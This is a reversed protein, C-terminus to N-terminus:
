FEGQGDGNNFEEFSQNFSPNDEVNAYHNERTIMQRSPNFWCQFAPRIIARNRNKAVYFHYEKPDVKADLRHPWCQFVIVDADQELQGSDKLDKMGPSFGGKRNEVGRSLQCLAVMLVKRTTAIQRLITSTRSVQEREDKGKGKLIQAYDVVVIKVGKTQIFDDILVVADEASSLDNVIYCQARDRFHNDVEMALQTTSRKWDEKPAESLYQLAREGLKDAPMEQSIFLVPYGVETWKHVGQLAVASKGHSPRAAFIVYEGFDVGGDLAQDLDPVGTPILKREGKKVQEIREQAADFLTKAKYEKPPPPCEYAPLPVSQLRHYPQLALKGREGAQKAAQSIKHQLEKESWPPQCTANWETLLALAVNEKIGFGIVLACAARFTTDHGRQGSIAGPIFTLYKRAREILSPEGMVPSPQPPPPAPFYKALLWQLEDKREVPEVGRVRLGTVAFYRGRDYIEIGPEKWCLKPATPLTIKKRTTALDGRLFLKAGTGSPSIECYTDFAAIVEKAWDAAEKTEPNRCGDLDIGILGGGEKFVFGIGSYSGREYVDWADEFPAWTEPDTSSAAKGSVAFPIKTPKGPEKEVSKWLVWQRLSKLSDPIREPTIADLNM